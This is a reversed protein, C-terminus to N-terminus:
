VDTVRNCTGTLFGLVMPLGIEEVTWMLSQLGIEVVLFYPLGRSAGGVMRVKM